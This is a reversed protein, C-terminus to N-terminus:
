GLGKQENKAGDRLERIPQKIWDESRDRFPDTSRGCLDYELPDERFTCHDHGRAGLGLTQLLVEGDRIETRGDFDEYDSIQQDRQRTASRVGSSTAAISSAPAFPAGVEHCLRAFTETENGRRRRMATLRSNRPYTASADEFRDQEKIAQAHSDTRYTKYYKRYFPTHM